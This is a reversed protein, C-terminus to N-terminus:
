SPGVGEAAEAPLCLGLREALAFIDSYWQEFPMGESGAELDKRQEPSHLGREAAYIHDYYATAEAPFDLYAQAHWQERVRYWDADILGRAVARDFASRYWDVLKGESGTRAPVQPREARDLASPAFATWSSILCRAIDGTKLAQSATHVVQSVSDSFSAGEAFIGQPPSQRLEDQWARIRQPQEYDQRTRALAKTEKQTWETSENPQADTLLGSLLPDALLDFPSVKLQHRAELFAIASRLRPGDVATGDPEIMQSVQARLYPANGNNAAINDPRWSQRQPLLEGASWARALERMIPSGALIM